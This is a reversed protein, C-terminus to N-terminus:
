HSNVRTKKSKIILGGLFFNDERFTLKFFDIYKQNLNIYHRFVDINLAEDDYNNNKIDKKFSLLEMLDKKVPNNLEHLLRESVSFFKFGENTLKDLLNKFLDNEEYVQIKKDLSSFFQQQEKETSLDYVHIANM